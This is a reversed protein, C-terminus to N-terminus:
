RKAFKIDDGYNLLTSVYMSRTMAIEFSIRKRGIKFNKAFQKTVLECMESIHHSSEPPLKLLLVKLQEKTLQPNSFDLQDINSVNQESSSSTQM